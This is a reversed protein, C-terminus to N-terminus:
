NQKGNKLGDVINQIQDIQNVTLQNSEGIIDLIKDGATIIKITSSSTSITSYVEIFLNLNKFNENSQIDNNGNNQILKKASRYIMQKARINWTVINKRKDIYPLFLAVTVALLEGIGTVWDALSGSQM